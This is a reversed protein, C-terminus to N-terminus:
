WWIKLAGMAAFSHSLGGFTKSTCSLARPGRDGHCTQQPESKVRQRPPWFRKTKQRDTPRDTQKNTVRKFTLNYAQNRWSTAPTCSRHQYRQPINTTTYGHEVNDSQQWSAVVSFASTWFVAFIPTKALLPRCFVGISVLNPLYAYATPRSYCVM